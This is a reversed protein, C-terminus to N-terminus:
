DIRVVEVRFGPPLAGGPAEFRVEGAAGYQLVAMSTSAITIPHVGPVAWIEPPDAHVGMRSLLERSNWSPQSFATHMPIIPTRDDTMISVFWRRRLADPDTGLVAALNADGSRPSNALGYWLEREPGAAHDAAYRLFSWIAGRTELDDDDQFPSQNSLDDIFYSYRVLNSAGYLSFARLRGPDALIMGSNLNSGPSIGTTRYFALEEAIHSLGENLWITEWETAGNVHLRRSANILHQLEHALTGPTVERISEETWRQGNISGSRDPALLYLIEAQNSATCESAPFLDGAYHFGGVYAEAEAPTLENVARTFFLLVRGNRDLDSPKGFAEVALPYLLTDFAAALEQYAADTLGGDPNATDTVILAHRGVATVRATRETFADCSAPARLALLDGIAPGASPVLSLAPGSARPSSHVRPRLERAELRRLAHEFGVDRRRLGEGSPLGWRARPLPAARALPALAPTSDLLTSPGDWPVLVDLNVSSGPPDENLALILHTGFDGAFCLRHSEAATLSRVEGLELRLQAGGSACASSRPPFVGVTVTTQFGEAEARLFAWGYSVARVAGAPSVTAVSTDESRWTVAIDAMPVEDTDIAVASVRTSDGPSLYLTVQEARLGLMTRRVQVRATDAADGVAAVIRATGPHYAIVFGSEDVTAVDPELSTWTPIWDRPLSGGELRARLNLTSQADVTTDGPEITLTFSAPGTTQECGVACLLAALPVSLLPRKM